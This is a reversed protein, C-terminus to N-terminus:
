KRADAFRNLVSSILGLLYKRTLRDSKALSDIARQEDTKDSVIGIYNKLERPRPPMQALELPVGISGGV